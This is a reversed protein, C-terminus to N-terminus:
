LSPDAESGFTWLRNAAYNWLLVAATALAKAPLYSWAAGQFLSALPAELWVVILTNLALGILSVAAFQLLQRAWPKHQRDAFTWRRNWTYNNLIGLSYSLVNAPLTAWGALKLVTLLAFDVLTGSVGVALFRLLRNTEEIAAAQPIANPRRM